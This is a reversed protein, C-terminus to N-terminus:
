RDASVKNKEHTNSTTEVLSKTEVDVMRIKPNSKTEYRFANYIEHRADSLNKRFTSLDMIEKDKHPHMKVGKYQRELCHNLTTSRQARLGVM